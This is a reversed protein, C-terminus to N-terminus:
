EDTEFTKQMRSRNLKNGANQLDPSSPLYVLINLCHIRHEELVTFGRTCMARVPLSQSILINYMYVSFPKAFLDSGCPQLINM